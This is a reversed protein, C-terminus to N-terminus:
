AQGNCTTTAVAEDANGADLTGAAGDPVVDTSGSSSIETGSALPGTGNVEV